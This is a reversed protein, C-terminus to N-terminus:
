KLLLVACVIIGLFQPIHLRCANIYMYIYISKDFAAGYTLPSLSALVESTCAPFFYLFFKWLLNENCKQFNHIDM